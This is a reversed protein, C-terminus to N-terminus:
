VEITQWKGQAFRAYMLVGRLALEGCLVLWIAALGLQFYQGVIYVGLLRVGVVSFINVYMAGRTDGAGRLASAYIIYAGFGVQIFGAFFLCRATLERVAPDESIFSAFLTAALIFLVGIVGMAGAGLFFGYRAVRKARAVDGMGLSQGVMTSTAIGVAFGTTFSLSELRIANFHAASSVVDLKNVVHVLYFNVSWMLVQEGGAPLGIRLVRLMERGHFRLRHARLRLGAYGTFLITVQMAAGFAYAIGTGLAIGRFGMEPLGFLGYSLSWTLAINVLNVLIMAAAPTRTDGAGRLCSNAVFLLLMAPAFPAFIRLYELAILAAREELGAVSTIAPAAFYFLAGLSVGLAAALLMAQGCAAHARTRHRAGIARAIIATAGTGVAASFLGVFWLLYAVTGVAATADVRIDEPLHNALYADNLGVLINLVNEALVPIALIVLARFLQERPPAPAPTIPPSIARM